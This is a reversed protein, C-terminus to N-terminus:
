NGTKESSSISVKGTHDRSMFFNAWSSTNALSCNVPPIHNKRMSDLNDDAVLRNYILTWACPRDEFVECMGNNSGGCPGNRLFKACKSMPCIFATDGLACDGCEQCGFLIHKGQREMFYAFAAGGKWKELLQYVAKAPKYFVATPSFLMNHFAKAFLFHFPKGPQKQKVPILNSEDLELSEDKIFYSAYEGSGYTLDDTYKRWNDGIEASRSIIIEVDKVKLGFGGIHVGNFGLGKFIAMMRAARELRAGKGKDEAQKELALQEVLEEPVRCGPVRGANMAKAAGGTLVYVNGIVPIDIHQYKLYKMLDLYQGMDYGLQPIVFDAGAVIKKELKIYQTTIESINKKFPSVACGVLFDTKPLQSRDGELGANMDKLYKILQVSGLDFVPKPGGEYGSVPYDGTVALINTLGSRQLASARSEIANRNNDACKFHVLAEMGIDQLEKALIDPSIAPTGGPNDTISIAHIPLKRELIEKGIEVAEDISKGKHGRGPVHELTIVFEDNNKIANRLTNM